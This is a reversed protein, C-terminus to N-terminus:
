KLRNALEKFTGCFIIKGDEQVEIINEEREKYTQGSGRFADIYINSQTNNQDAFVCVSGIKEIYKPTKGKIGVTKLSLKAM